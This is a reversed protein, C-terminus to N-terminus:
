FIMRIDTHKHWILYLKVRLLKDKM